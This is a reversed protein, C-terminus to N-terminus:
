MDCHQMLEHKIHKKWDVPNRIRPMCIEYLPHGDALLLGEGPKYIRDPIEEGSFLISRQERSMRGFNAIIMMNDRCGNEFINASPRQCILWIGYEMSRGLMLIESVASLIDNSRKTKNQKDNAMMRSIAGPYEDFILIHRKSTERKIRANSYSEYYAMVGEYCKDGSYYHPYGELFAFDTSNKFDCIYVSTNPTEKLLNGCLYLTAYSKGSNSSGSLLAHCHSKIPLNLPVPPKGDTGRIYGWM